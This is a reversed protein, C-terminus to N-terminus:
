CGRHKIAKSIEETFTTGGCLGAADYWVKYGCQSLRRAYQHVIRRDKQSYSIFIDYEEAM